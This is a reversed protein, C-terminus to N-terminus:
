FFEKQFSSFMFIYSLLPIEDSSFLPDRSASHLLPACMKPDSGSVCSEACATEKSAFRLCEPPQTDLPLPCFYALYLKNHQLMQFGIRSAVGLLCHPGHKELSDWLHLPSGQPKLGLETKNERLM